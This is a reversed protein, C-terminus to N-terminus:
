RACSPSVNSGGFNLEGWIAYIHTDAGTWNYRLKAGNAVYDLASTTNNEAVNMDFSIVKALPNYTEAAADHAFWRQAALDKFASIKPRLGAYVFSNDAANAGVFKGLAFLGSMESIVLYDYTGTATGTDIKFSTSLVTKITAATAEAATSCLDLLKGSTCDPHYVRVVTGGARPFLLILQRATLGLNHTVTTDAGSTHSVSGAATGYASDIRISYGSYTNAGSLSSKAQRTVSSAAIAYENSSDHSFQWLWSGTTSRVKKIDVYAPWGTRATALNADINAGTATIAQVGNAPNPIAVAPLNATCLAKFGTPPTYAFPRQGFNWEATVTGGGGNSDTPVWTLGGTLNIYAGSGQVTGNKYFRITQTGSDLDLEIGIVDNTTYSTGYAASVGNLYRNGNSSYYGVSNSGTFNNATAAQTVDIVGFNHGSGIADTKTVEWYWKGSSVAITGRPDITSALTQSSTLNGNTLTVGNVPLIANLTAYNNTPTDTLWDYTVGATTSIGSATWNNGNGSRDYGLTTASTGDNFKLYSGCTGWTASPQSPIPVGNTDTTSYAISTSGDVLSPESLVGDFYNGANDKGIYHVVAANWNTNTNTISSRTDTSYSGVETGNILIKARLAATGNAVDLQFGVDVYHASPDRYVATTVLRTTGLVDLCLRDSSDFYFRDISSTGASAIVQLAGLTGRKIRFRGCLLKSNGAVGPTRSFSASASARLRVSNAITYSGSAGFGGHLMSM